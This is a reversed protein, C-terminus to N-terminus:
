WVPFRREILQTKSDRVARLIPDRDGCALWFSLRQNAVNNGPELVVAGTTAVGRFLDRANFGLYIAMQGGVGWGHAVIRQRDINDVALVDRVAETVIELESHVWGSDAESKPGMVICHNDKCFDEWMDAIKENEEDTYKGPQHLWVVLSY